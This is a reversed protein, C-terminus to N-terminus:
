LSRGTTQGRKLNEMNNLLYSLVILSSPFSGLHGLSSETINHVLYMFIISLLLVAEQWNDKITKAIIKASSILFAAFILLGIIGVNLITDLYGSHASVSIQERLSTTWFGGFGYGFLIKKSAYPVLANWIQTRGTLTADRGLMKPLEKIPIKGSFPMFTGTFIIILVIIIIKNEVRIGKKIGIKLLIITVLGILLAFFSTSSYTLTRRPGLLLYISLMLMASDILIQLKKSSINKEPLFQWLSWILFIASFSCILGLGNKQSAIGVWMLEGTHIHYARGYQPFYKVLVLSFPLAIYIAKKFSSHFAKYPNQETILLFAIILTIAEKGWRRFSIAPFTSWTISLLMYGIILVVFYNKKLAYSWDFNRKRLIAIAFIVLILLFYRDLISGEEITREM